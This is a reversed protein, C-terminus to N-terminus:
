VPLTRAGARGSTEAHRRMVDQFSLGTGPWGQRRVTGLHCSKSEPRAPARVRDTSQFTGVQIRTKESITQRTSRESQQVPNTIREIDRKKTLIQNAILKMSGEIQRIVVIEEGPKPLQMAEPIAVTLVQSAAGSASRASKSDILTFIKSDSKLTGVIGIVAVSKGQYLGSNRVIRGVDATKQQALLPLSTVHILLVAGFLKANM